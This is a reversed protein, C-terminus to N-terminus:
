YDFIYFPKRIDLATLVNLIQQTTPRLRWDKAFMAELLKDFERNNSNYVAKVIEKPTSQMFYEQARQDREYSFIGTIMDTFVKGLAYIDFKRYDYQSPIDTKAESVLRGRSDVKPLADYVEPSVYGYTSPRKFCGVNGINEVMCGEQVCGMGLDLLTVVPRFDVESVMINSPKLDYHAVCLEHLRGVIETIQIMINLFQKTMDIREQDTSKLRTERHAEILHGLTKGPVLDMVVYTGKDTFIPAERFWCIGQVGKENLYHHITYERMIDDTDTRPEYYKIAVDNGLDDQGKYVTGFGGSGLPKGSIYYKVGSKARIIEYNEGNMVPLTGSTQMPEMPEYAPMMPVNSYAIPPSSKIEAEMPAVGSNEPTGFLVRDREAESQTGDGFMVKDYESPSVIAM